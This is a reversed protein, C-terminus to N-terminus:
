KYLPYNHINKKMDSVEQSKIVQYKRNEVVVVSINKEVVVFAHNM